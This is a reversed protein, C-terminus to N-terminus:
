STGRRAFLGHYEVPVQMAFLIACSINNYDDGYTKNKQFKVPHMETVVTKANGQLRNYEYMQYTILWSM